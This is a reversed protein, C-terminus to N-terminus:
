PVLTFHGAGDNQFYQTVTTHTSSVEVVKADPIGDGNHDVVSVTWNALFDTTSALVVPAQGNGFLVEARISNQRTQCNDSLLMDQGGDGNFDALVYQPAITCRENISGSSLTGDANNVLSILTNQQGTWELLDLRGDGNVDATTLWYPQIVGHYTAAPTYNHLVVIDNSGFSFATILDPTTESGLKVAVVVDPCRQSNENSTYTYTTPSGYGGGPLGPSVAVSCMTGGAPNLQVLDPLGDGNMDAVITVSQGANAVAPLAVVFAVGMLLAASVGVLRTHRM